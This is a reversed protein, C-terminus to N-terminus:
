KMENNMQINTSKDNASETKKGVKVQAVRIIKEHLRYGPRLEAIVMNDEGDVVEICEMSGPDFLAGVVTIKKVGHIALFSELEKLGLGLGEDKVHAQAREFTDVIPLLKMLVMEAAFVRVQAKEEQSRKELNHYDALARLCKGRWEEIQKQLEDTQVNTQVNQKKKIQNIM